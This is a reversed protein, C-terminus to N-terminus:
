GSVAARMRQLAEELLARSCGFNLRVFGEAGFDRGPSLGVGAEEFFRQPDDVGLARCDIWALYTAEPKVVRLGGVGDLTMVRERNGRLYDLLEARWATCDRYAAVTAAYGLINVHPVIGAMAKGFRRRLSDSPIVAVAAGLGPINYTKSPAMLTISRSAADASQLAFPRHRLGPELILDCHIEDSVVILDHTAAHEAIAQLEGANWVRGIPNHPHCLMLGRTRATTAARLAAIDWTWDHAPDLGIRLSARDQNAASTFLHPYVPTATLLADGAEGIARAAVNLGCVLGPLPVIWDPQVTWDYDRQLADAIVPAFEPPAGYGFVGHALRAQLAALVAPPAAFDMDAVWMPLIDRGAYKQWKLSDSGRRDPPTDFSCTM